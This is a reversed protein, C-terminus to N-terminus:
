YTVKLIQVQRCHSAIQLFGVLIQPQAWGGEVVGLQELLQVSCSSTHRFGFFRVLVGVAMGRNANECKQM